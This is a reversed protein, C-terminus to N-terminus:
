SKLRSLISHLQVACDAAERGKHGEKGGLREWAQEDNETTLVGFVIPIHQDLAVRQCGYSVQQCVYDYHSTEGRIVAGLAIIVDAKKSLAIQQAVIPIEIAGPVEIILLAEEDFGLEKLRAITGNKLAATIKENFVSVVIAISAKSAEALKEMM